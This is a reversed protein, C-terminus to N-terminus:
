ETSSEWEFPEDSDDSDRREFEAQYADIQDQSPPRDANLMSLPSPHYQRGTTWFVATRSEHGVLFYEGERNSEQEFSSFDVYTPVFM